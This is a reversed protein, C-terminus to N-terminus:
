TAAWILGHRLIFSISYHVNSLTYYCCVMNEPRDRESYQDWFSFLKLSWEVGRLSFPFTATYELIFTASTCIITFDEIMIFYAIALSFLLLGNTASFWSLHTFCTVCASCIGCSVLRKECSLNGSFLLHLSSLVWALEPVSSLDIYTYDDICILASGWAIRLRM